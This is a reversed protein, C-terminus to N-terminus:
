GRTRQGGLLLPIQPKRGLVELEFPTLETYNFLYKQMRRVIEEQKRQSEPNPRWTPTDAV